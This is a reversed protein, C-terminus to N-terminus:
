KSVLVMPLPLWRQLLSSFHFQETTDSEKCDWPIYGVLSRQGHSKGPLLVPTSKWKRGWPIKGVWPDFGPRRCQLCISLQRLWWPLGDRSFWHSYLCHSTLDKNLHFPGSQTTVSVTLNQTNPFKLTLSLFPYLCLPYFGLNVCVSFHWCSIHPLRHCTYAVVSLPFLSCNPLILLTFACFTPPSVDNSSSRANLHIGSPMSQLLVPKMRPTCVKYKGLSVQAERAAWHYLIQRCYGLRLLWPNSEQTPFIGQLLAHCGVGTNKGPSNWPCPLRTARM